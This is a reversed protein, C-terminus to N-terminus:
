GGAGRGIWEAVQPMQLIASAGLLAWAVRELATLRRSHDKLQEAHSRIVAEMAQIQGDRVGEQYDSHHNKNDDMAICAWVEAAEAIMRPDILLDDPETAPFNALLTSAFVLTIFFSLAKKVLNFRLFAIHM